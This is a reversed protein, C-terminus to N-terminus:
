CAERASRFKDYNPSGWLYLVGGADGNVAYADGYDDRRAIKRADKAAIARQEYPYVLSWCGRPGHKVFEDRAARTTFAFVQAHNPYYPDRVTHTAYYM